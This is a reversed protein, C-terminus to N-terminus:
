ALQQWSPLEGGARARTGLSLSSLLLGVVGWCAGREGQVRSMWVEKRRVGRSAQPSPGSGSLGARSEVPFLDTASLDVTQLGLEFGAQRNESQTAQPLNIVSHSHTHM